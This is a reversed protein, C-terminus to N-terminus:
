RTTLRFAALQRNAEAESIPYEVGRRSQLSRDSAIGAIDTQLRVCVHMALRARRALATVLMPDASALIRQVIQEAFGSRLSLGTMLFERDDTDIAEVFHSEELEGSQFLRGARASGSGSGSGSGGELEQRLVRGVAEAVDRPLDSREGLILLVSMEAFAALRAAVDGPLNPRVAIAEQRAVRRGATSVLGFLTENSVRAGPNRLLRDTAPENGTAVVVDCVVSSLSPRGAVVEVRWSAPDSAVIECLLQDPLAACFRLMPEAVERQVDRALTSALGEPINAVGKLADALTERVTALRDLALRELAAVTVAHMKEQARPDMGPLLAALRRALAVRVENHPDVVLIESILHPAAPNAAVAARVVDDADAALFFLVEPPADPDAAVRVRVSPDRDAALRKADDYRFPVPRGLPDNGEHTPEWM